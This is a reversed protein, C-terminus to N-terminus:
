RRHGPRSLKWMRPRRRACGEFRKILAMGAAGVERPPEFPDPSDPRLASDLAADLSAVEAQLFGRGLLRRVADFIRKRDM